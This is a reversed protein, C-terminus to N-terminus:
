GSSTESDIKDQSEIMYMSIIKKRGKELVSKIEPYYSNNWLKNSLINIIKDFTKDKDTLNEWSFVWNLYDIFWDSLYKGSNTKNFHINAQYKRNGLLADILDVVTTMVMILDKDNFWICSQWDKCFEKEKTDWILKYFKDLWAFGDYKDITEISPYDKHHYLVSSLYSFEPFFRFFQLWYEIHPHTIEWLLKKNFIEFLIIIWLLLDDLDTDSYVFDWLERFIYSHIIEKYSKNIIEISYWKENIINAIHTSIILVNNLFLKNWLLFWINFSKIKVFLEDVLIGILSKKQVELIIQRVDLQKTKNYKKIQIDKVIDIDEVINLNYEDTLFMLIQLFFRYTDTRMNISEYNWMIDLNDSKWIDHLYWLLIFFHKDSIPLTQKILNIQWKLKKDEIWKSIYNLIKWVRIMHEVTEPHRKWILNIKEDIVNLFQNVNLLKDIVVKFLVEFKTKYLEFKKKVEEEDINWNLNISLPINKKNYNLDLIVSSQYKKKDDENFWVLKIRKNLEKNIEIKYSLNTENVNLWLYQILFVKIFYNILEYDFGVINEVRNMLDYFIIDQLSNIKSYIEDELNDINKKNIEKYYSYYIWTVNKITIIPSYKSLIYSLTLKSVKDEELILWIYSVSNYGSDTDLWWYFKSFTKLWNREKKLFTDEINKIKQKVFNNWSFQYLVSLNNLYTTKVADSYSDLDIDIFLVFNLLIDIYEKLLDNDKDLFVLEYNAYSVLTNFYNFWYAIWIYNELNKLENIVSSIKLKVNINVAELWWNDIFDEKKSMDNYFLIWQCHNVIFCYKDTNEYKSVLSNVINVLLDLNVLKLEKLFLDLRDYFNNNLYYSIISVILMTMVENEMDFWWTSLIKDKVIDIQNLWEKYWWAMINNINQMDEESFESIKKKKLCCTWWLVNDMEDFIIDCNNVKNEISM